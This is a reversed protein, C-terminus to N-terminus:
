LGSKAHLFTAHEAVNLRPVDAVVAHLLFIKNCIFIAHKFDFLNLMSLTLTHLTQQKASNKSTKMFPKKLLYTLLYPLLYYEALMERAARSEYM